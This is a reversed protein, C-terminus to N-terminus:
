GSKLAMWIIDMFNILLNISPKFIRQLYNFDDFNDQKVTTLYNLILRFSNQLDLFEPMLKYLQQKKSKTVHDSIGRLQSKLSILANIAWVKQYSVV